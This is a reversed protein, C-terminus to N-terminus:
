SHGRVAPATRHRRDRGSGPCGRKGTRRPTRTATVRGVRRTRCELVRREHSPVPAANKRRHTDALSTPRGDARAERFEARARSRRDPKGRGISPLVASWFDASLEAVPGIFHLFFDPRSDAVRASGLRMKPLLPATLASKEPMQATERVGRMAGMRPGRSVGTGDFERDSSQRRDPPGDRM